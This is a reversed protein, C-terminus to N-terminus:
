PSKETQPLVWVHTIIVVNLQKQYQAFKQIYLVQRRVYKDIKTTMFICEALLVSCVRNSLPHIIELYKFVHAEMTTKSPARVVNSTPWLPGDRDRADPGRAAAGGGARM